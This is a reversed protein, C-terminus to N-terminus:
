RDVAAATAFFSRSVCFFAAGGHGVLRRGVARRALFFRLPSFAASPLLLIDKHNFQGDSEALASAIQCISKQNNLIHDIAAATM